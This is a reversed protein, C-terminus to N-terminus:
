RASRLDKPLFINFKSGEGLESEVEIRGKHLDVIEKAISLGLGTSDVNGNKSLSLNSFRQFVKPLDDKPIGCGSDRVSILVETDKDVAEFVVSGNAKNYKIANSLLNAFVEFIKDCDVWIKIPEDPLIVKLSVSHKSALPAFSKEANRILSNLDALERKMKLNGTEMRSIDLLNDILRVLRTVSDISILLSQKQKDNVEGLVGDAVLNVGEKVTALPSKLEHALNSIFKNKEDNVRTLEKYQKFNRVSIAAQQAISVLLDLDGKNFRKKDKRDTINLVGVLEKNVLLPVSLLSNTSYKTVKKYNKNKFRPHDDIDKILLPKLEKAVWGAIGQGLKIRAQKVIEEKLGSAAEIVLENKKKDILMLSAINANFVRCLRDVLTRYCQDLEILANMDKTVDYVVSLRNIKNRLSVDKIKAIKQTAM